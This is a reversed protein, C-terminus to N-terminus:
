PRQSNDNKSPNQQTKVGMTAVDLAGKQAFNGILTQKFLLIKAKRSM